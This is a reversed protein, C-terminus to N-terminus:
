KNTFRFIKINEADNSANMGLEHRLEKRLLELLQNYTGFGERQIQEILEHVLQIQRGSGFLQIDAIASEFDKRYETSASHSSKELKRYADILHQIRLERKKNAIDKKVNLRHAIFWGCVAVVAALIPGVLPFYPQIAAIDM